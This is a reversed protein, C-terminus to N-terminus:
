GESGAGESGSSGGHRGSQIAAEIYCEGRPTVLAQLLAIRSMIPHLLHEGALCLQKIQSANESCGPM